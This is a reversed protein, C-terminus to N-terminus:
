LEIAVIEKRQKRKCWSAPNNVTKHTNQKSRERAVILRTVYDIINGTVMSLCNMVYLSYASEDIAWINHKHHNWINKM